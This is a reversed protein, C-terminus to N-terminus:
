TESWGPMICSIFHRMLQPVDSRRERLPPVKLSVVNLRYYLDVRLEKNRVAEEPEVNTCAIM